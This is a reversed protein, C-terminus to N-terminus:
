ERILTVFATYAEYFMQSQGCHFETRYMKTTYM